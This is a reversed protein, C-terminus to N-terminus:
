GLVYWRGLWALCTNEEKIRHVCGTLIIMSQRTKRASDSSSGVRFLQSHVISQEQRGQMEKLRIEHWEWHRVRNPRRGVTGQFYALCDDTCSYEWTLISCVFQHALPRCVVRQLQYAEQSYLGFLFDKVYEEQIDQVRLLLFFAILWQLTKWKDRWPYEWNHGVM